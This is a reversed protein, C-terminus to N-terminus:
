YNHLGAHIYACKIYLNVTYLFTTEYVKPTNSPIEIEHIKNEPDQVYIIWPAQVILFIVSGNRINPYSSLLRGDELVTGTGSGRYDVILKQRFPPTDPLKKHLKRKTDLITADQM